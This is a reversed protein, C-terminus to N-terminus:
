IADAVYVFIQGRVLQHIRVERVSIGHDHPHPQGAADRMKDDNGAFVPKVIEYLIGAATRRFAEIRQALEAAVDLRQSKVLRDRIYVRPERRLSLQLSCTRSASLM